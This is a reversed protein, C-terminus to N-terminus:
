TDAFLEARSKDIFDLSTYDMAVVLDFRHQSYKLRLYDRFALRYDATVFRQQDIFESYYDIGASLGKALSQPLERDGIEAIPNSRTGAYLVLVQKQDAAGADEAWGVAGAILAILLWHM